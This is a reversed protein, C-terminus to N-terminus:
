IRRLKDMLEKKFISFHCIYNTCRLTDIGFDPKFYVDFRKTSDEGVKDEDTYIFEVKPNENIAKAVEFLSFKPLLDDHDLLGVYDGTVLKLAENTNGLFIKIKM